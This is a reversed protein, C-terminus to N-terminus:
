VAITADSEITLSLVRVGRGVDSTGDRSEGEVGEGEDGVEMRVRLQGVLARLSVFHGFSRGASPLAKKKGCDWRM